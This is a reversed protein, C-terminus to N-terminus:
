RIINPSPYANHNVENHLKEWEGTQEEGVPGLIRLVQKKFEM